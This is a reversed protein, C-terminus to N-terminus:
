FEPHRVQYRKNEIYLLPIGLILSYFGIIILPTSLFAWHRTIEKQWEFWYAGEGAAVLIGIIPSAVGLTTLVIGTSLMHKTIYKATRYALGNRDLPKALDEKNM